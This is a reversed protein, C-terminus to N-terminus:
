VVSSRVWVYLLGLSLVIRCSVSCQCRASSSPTVIVIGGKKHNSVSYGLQALTGLCALMNVLSFFPPHAALRLFVILHFYRGHRGSSKKWILKLESRCRSYKASWNKTFLSSSSWLHPFGHTPCCMLDFLFGVRGRELVKENVKALKKDVTMAKGGASVFSDPRHALALSRGQRLGYDFQVECRNACVDVWENMNMWSCRSSLWLVYWAPGVLDSVSLTGRSRFLEFPSRPAADLVAVNDGSGSGSGGGGGGGGGAVKIVVSKDAAPELAVAVQPLGGSGGTGVVRRRAAGTVEEEEDSATTHNHRTTTATTGANNDIHVLDAASFESLDYADYEDWSNDM